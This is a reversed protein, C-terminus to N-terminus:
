LSALDWLAMSKDKYAGEDEMCHENIVLMPEPLNFPEAQLNIIRWGGTVINKNVSTKTFTTTLLYKAGSQKINKLAAFTDEFSFHVLCDRVFLLDCKPLPDQLIDLVQFKEKCDQTNKEILKEVIDAGIYDVDSLNVHQMWNFDGCPIDLMSKITLKPMLRNLEKRLRETQALESGPGSVSERSRWENNQYIETFVM